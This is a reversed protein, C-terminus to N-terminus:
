EPVIVINPRVLTPGPEAEVETHPMHEHFLAEWAEDYRRQLKSFPEGGIDPVLQPSDRLQEDIEEQMQRSADRGAKVGEFFLAATEDNIMMPRAVDADPSNYGTMFGNCWWDSPTVPQAAADGEITIEPLVVAGGNDNGM